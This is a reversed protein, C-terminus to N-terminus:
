CAWWPLAPRPTSCASSTGCSTTPPSSGRGQAVQRRPASATDLDQSRPESGVEGGPQSPHHQRHRQPSITSSQRAANASEIWSYTHPSKLDQVRMGLPSHRGQGLDPGPRGAGAARRHHPRRLCLRGRGVDRAPHCHAPVGPSRRHARGVTAQAHPPLPAGPQRGDVSGGQAPLGPTQPRSVPDAGPGSSRPSGPQDQYEAGPSGKTLAPPRGARPPGRGGPRPWRPRTPRSPERRRPAGYPGSPRGKCPARPLAPGRPEPDAKTSPM